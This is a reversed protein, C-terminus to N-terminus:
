WITMAQGDCRLPLFVGVIPILLYAMLLARSLGDQSAGGALHQEVWPDWDGSLLMTGAADRFAIVRNATLDGPNLELYHSDVDYLRIYQGGDASGDLCAGDLCDGVSLVDGGNNGWGSIIAINEDQLNNFDNKLNLVIKDAAEEMLIIQPITNLEVAKKDLLIAESISIINNNILQSM